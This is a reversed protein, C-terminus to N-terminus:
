LWKPMELVQSDSLLQKIYPRDAEKTPADPTGLNILLVGTKYQNSHQYIHKPLM